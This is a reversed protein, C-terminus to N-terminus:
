DRWVIRLDDETDYFEDPGASVLEFGSRLRTYRYPKGWFDVSPAKLRSELREEMIAAFDAEPPFAGTEIQIRRLQRKLRELDVSTGLGLVVNVPIDVVSRAGPVLRLIPIAALIVLLIALRKLREKLKPSMLVGVRM